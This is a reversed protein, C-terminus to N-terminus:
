VKAPYIKYGHVVSCNASISLLVSHFFYNPLKQYNDILVFHTSNCYERCIRIVDDLTGGPPLAIPDVDQLGYFPLPRGSFQRLEYQPMCGDDFGFVEVYEADKFGYGAAIGLQHYVKFAESKVSPTPLVFASIAPRNVRDTASVYETLHIILERLSMTKASYVSVGFEKDIKLIKLNTAMFSDTGIIDMYPLYTSLISIDTADGEKIPRTRQTLVMANLRASISVIPTKRFDQNKAFDIFQRETALHGYNVQASKLYYRESDLFERELQQEFSLGEKIIAKRLIELQSAHRLRGTRLELLEFHSDVTINYKKVRQDPDDRFAIDISLPDADVGLFQQLSRGIQYEEVRYPHNLAIQGVYNQYRVIHQKLLPALSTEIDHFHSQPVVLKEELFGVKLIEYLDTFEPRVMTKLNQKAIESIFNQDLYVLLKKTRKPPKM